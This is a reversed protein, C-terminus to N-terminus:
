PTDTLPRAAREIRSQVEDSYDDADRYIYLPPRVRVDPSGGRRAVAEVLYADDAANSHFFRMSHLSLDTEDLAVFLDSLRIPPIIVKLWGRQDLVYTAARVFDALTGHLEHHASARESNESPRRQGERYYPPNCVVLNACHADLQARFARLDAEIAEVRGGLENREINERLLAALQPQREVCLIRWESHRAAVCLGVAGQAAGLDVVTSGAPVEPLDTALLLSDLGFRYGRSHQVIELGGDSIMDTTTTEQSSM